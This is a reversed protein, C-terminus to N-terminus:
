EHISNYLKRLQETEKDSSQLEAMKKASVRKVGTEFKYGAKLDLARANIAENICERIVTYYQWPEWTRNLYHCDYRRIERGERLLTCIHTFGNRNLELECVTEFKVGDINYNTTTM